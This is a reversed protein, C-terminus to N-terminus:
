SSSRTRAQGWSSCKWYSRGTTLLSPDRGRVFRVRTIEDLGMHM